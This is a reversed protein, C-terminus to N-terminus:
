KNKNKNVHPKSLNKKLLPKLVVYLVSVAM